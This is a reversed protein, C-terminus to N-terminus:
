GRCCWSAVFICCWNEWLWSAFGSLGGSALAQIAEPIFTVIGVLGEWITSALRALRAPLDRIINIVWMAADRMREGMWEAAGSLFSGVDHARDGIWDVASSLSSGINEGVSKIGEWIDGFISRQVQPAASHYVPSGTQGAQETSSDQQAVHTLEHALLQRGEHSEPRYQGPAFVVDRGVTYARANLVQASLAAEPDTHVRVRSLDRGLRPELSVSLSEPLPKGGSLVKQSSSEKKSTDEPGSELGSGRTTSETNRGGFRADEPTRMVDKSVRDVERECRDGPKNIKLKTQITGSSFQRQVAQNGVTRQLFLSQNFPSNNSQVLKKGRTKSFSNEKKAESAKTKQKIKNTM